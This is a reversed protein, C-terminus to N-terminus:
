EQYGRLTVTTTCNTTPFTGQYNISMTNNPVSCTISDLDNARLFMFCQGGDVCGSGTWATVQNSTIASASCSLTLATDIWSVFSPVSSGFSINVCGLTNPVLTAGSVSAYVVKGNSYCSKTGYKLSGVYIHTRDSDKFLLSSNPATSSFEYEFTGSNDYVYLYGLGFHSGCSPCISSAVGLSFTDTVNHERASFNSGTDWVILGLPKIIIVASTDVCFYRNGGIGISAMGAIADVYGKTAVDTPNVPTGHNTIIKSNVSINSSANSLINHPAVGIFGTNTANRQEFYYASLSPRNEKHPGYQVSNIIAEATKFDFKFIMLGFLIIISFYIYRRM